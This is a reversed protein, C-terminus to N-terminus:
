WQQSSLTSLRVVSGAAMVLLLVGDVPLLGAHRVVAFFGFASLQVLGDPADGVVQAAAHVAPVELAVHEAHQEVTEDGLVEGAVEVLLLSAGAVGIEVVGGEAVLVGFEAAGLRHLFLAEVDQGRLQEGVHASAGALIGVEVFGERADKDVDLCGGLARVAFVVELAQEVVQVDVGAFEAGGHGLAVFLQDLQQIGDAVQGKATGAVVAAATEGVVADVQEAVGVFVQHLHVGGGGALGAALEIGRLFDGLQQGAEGHHALGFDVLDVVRGAAGAGQQQFEGLHQPRVLHALAKVALLHVEGGVVQAADVHEQVVDVVFLEVDGVAVGEGVWVM